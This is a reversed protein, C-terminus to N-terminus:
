LSKCVYCQTCAIREAELSHIDVTSRPSFEPLLADAVPSFSHRESGLSSAKLWVLFLLVSFPLARPPEQPPIPLYKGQMRRQRLSEALLLATGRGQRKIEEDRPEAKQM